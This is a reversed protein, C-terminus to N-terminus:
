LSMSRLGGTRAARWLHWQRTLASGGDAARAVPGIRELRRLDRVVLCLHLYAPDIVDECAQLATQAKRAHSLAARCLAMWVADCNEAPKSRTADFVAGHDDGLATPVLRADRFGSLALNGLGRRITIAVGGHGSVDAAASVATGALVTAAMQLITGATEGAYGELTDMDPMRDDYLDFIRAETLAILREPGLGFRGLTDQLAALVPAAAVDGHALGGLADRWWQLRIAGIMAESVISSVRATEIDFAYLAHLHPRVAAPAFLSALYRDRDHTRVLAACEDYAHDLAM